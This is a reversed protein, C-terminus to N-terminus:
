STAKFYAYVYSNQQKKEIITWAKSTSFFPAVKLSLRNVEQMLEFGFLLGPPPFPHYMM